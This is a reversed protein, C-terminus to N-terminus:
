KKRLAPYKSKLRAEDNFRQLANLTRLNASSDKMRTAVDRPDAGARLVKRTTLNLVKAMASNRFKRDDRKSKFVRKVRQQGLSGEKLAKGAARAARRSTYIDNASIQPDSHYTHFSSMVADISHRPNAMLNPIQHKQLITHISKRLGKPAASGANIQALHKGHKAKLERVTSNPLDFVWDEKRWAPVSASAEKLSPVAKGAARAAKRSRRSRLQFQYEADIEHKPDYSAPHITGSDDDDDYPDQAYNFGRRAAAAANKLTTSSAGGRRLRSIDSKLNAQHLQEDSAKGAKKMRYTKMAKSRTAEKLQEEADKKNQMWFSAEKKDGKKMAKVINRKSGKISKKLQGKSHVYSGEYLDMGESINKGMARLKQQIALEKENFRAIAKDVAPSTKTDKNFFKAITRKPAGGKRLKRAVRRGLESDYATARKKAIELDGFNKGGTMARLLRAKRKAGETISEEGMEEENMPKEANAAKFFREHDFRPNQKKFIEAHHAALEARKKADPHAKILDAVQQFHKRTVAENMQPHDFLADTNENLAKALYIRQQLNPSNM